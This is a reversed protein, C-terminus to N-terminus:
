EDAYCDTTLDLASIKENYIESICDRFWDVDLDDGEGFRAKVFNELSPASRIINYPFVVAGKKYLVDSLSVNNTICPIVQNALYNSIKTPSAVTNVIHDKRVLFGYKISKLDESLELGFKTDILVEHLNFKSVLREFTQKQESYISLRAAPYIQQIGKFITFIEDVCQWDHDSGIYVFSLPTKRCDDVVDLQNYCPVVQCYLKELNIKYKRQYHIRMEESVFLRKDVILLAIYEIISWALWRAVSYGLMRAEEPIIGQFWCIVHSKPRRIRVIIADLANYVFVNGESPLSNISNVRSIEDFSRLVGEVYIETASASSKPDNLIYIKM